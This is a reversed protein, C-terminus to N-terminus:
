RLSGDAVDRDFVPVSNGIGGVRNTTVYVVGSPGPSSSSQLGRQEEAHRDLQSGARVETSPLLNTTLILDAALAPNKFSNITIM